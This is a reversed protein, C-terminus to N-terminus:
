ISNDFKVAVAKKDVYNNWDCLGTHGKVKSFHFRMDMFFKSLQQWLEQNKVPTRASTLWNNSKWKGIWNQEYANICYASDSYVEVRDEIQLFPLLAECGAILASLECINNTAPEIKFAGEVMIKEENNLVVFAAGGVPNKGGNNSCAGDTYIKYKM